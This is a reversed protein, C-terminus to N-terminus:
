KRRAIAGAIANAGGIVAASGFFFGIIGLESTDLPAPWKPIRLLWSDGLLPAFSTGIGVLLIHLAFPFGIMWGLVAMWTPLSKAAARANQQDALLAQLQEINAQAAIQEHETTASLKDSYAKGLADVIKSLPGGGFWSLIFKLM